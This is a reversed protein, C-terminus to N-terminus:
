SPAGNTEPTTTEDPESSEQSGNSLRLGTLRAIAREFFPQELLVEMVRNAFELPLEGGADESYEVEEGDVVLHWGTYLGPLMTLVTSGSGLLVEYDKVTIRSRVEIWGDEDLGYEEAPFDVKIFGWKWGKAM